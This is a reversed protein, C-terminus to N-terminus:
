RGNVVPCCCFLKECVVREVHNIVIVKSVIARAVGVSGWKDVAIKVVAISRRIMNGVNVAVITASAVVNQTVQAQFQRIM